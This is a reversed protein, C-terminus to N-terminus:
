GPIASMRALAFKGASVSTPGARHWQYPAQIRRAEAVSPAPMGEHHIADLLVGGSTHSAVRVDAPYARRRVSDHRLRGHQSRARRRAPRRRLPPAGPSHGDRTRSVREGYEGRAPAADGPRWPAGRPCPHLQGRYLGAGVHADRKRARPWVVSRQQRRRSQARRRPITRPRAAEAPHGASRREYWRAHRRADVDGRVRVRSRGRDLSRSRRPREDACQDALSSPVGGACVAPLRDFRDPTRADRDM